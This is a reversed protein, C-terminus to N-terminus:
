FPEDEHAELEGSQQLKISREEGSADQLMKQVYEGKYDDPLREVASAIVQGWQEPSFFTEPELTRMVQRAGVWACLSVFQALTMGQEDAWKQLQAAKEPTFRTWVRVTDLAM